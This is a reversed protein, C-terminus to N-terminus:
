QRGFMTGGALDGPGRGNYVPKSKKLKRKPPKPPAQGREAPIISPRSELPEEIVEPLGETPATEKQMAQQIAEIKTKCRYNEFYGYCIMIFGVIFVFQFLRKNEENKLQQARVQIQHHRNSGYPMFQERM